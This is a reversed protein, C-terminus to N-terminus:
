AFSRAAVGSWRRAGGQAETEGDTSAGPPCSPARRRILARGGRVRGRERGDGDWAPGRCECYKIVAINVPATCTVAALPKESAMTGGRLTGLEVAM